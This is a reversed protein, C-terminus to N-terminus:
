AFVTVIHFCNTLLNIFYVKINTIFNLFGHSLHQFFQRGKMFFAADISNGFLLALHIRFDIERLKNGNTRKGMVGFGQKGPSTIALIEPIKTFTPTMFLEIPPLSLSTESRNLSRHLYTVIEFDEGYVSIMLLKHSCQSSHHFLAIAESM